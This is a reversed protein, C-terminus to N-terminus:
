VAGGDAALVDAVSRGRYTLKSAAEKALGLATDFDFRHEALWAAQRKDYDDMEEETVPEILDPEWSFGWSWAGDTGLVRGRLEVAWQGSSRYSLQVSYTHRDDHGEPLCSVVYHTAQVIPGGLAPANQGAVPRATDAPHETM